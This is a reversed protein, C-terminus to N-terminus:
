MTPLPVRFTKYGAIEPFAEAAEPVVLAVIAATVEGNTLRNIATGQGQMLQVESAGAAAMAATVKNHAGAYREDIAVTRGRLDSIARVSPRVMLVAVLRSAAAAAVAESRPAADPKANPAPLASLATIREALATAVAVQEQVSAGSPSSSSPPAAAPRTEPQEAPAATAAKWKALPIAPDAPIRTAESLQPPPAAVKHHEAVHHHRRKHRVASRHRRIGAERGSLSPGPHAVEPRVACPAGTLDVCPAVAQVPPQRSCGGLALAAVLALASFHLARM